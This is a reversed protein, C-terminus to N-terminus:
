VAGATADPTSLGLPKLISLLCIGNSQIIYSKFAMWAKMLTSLMEKLNM